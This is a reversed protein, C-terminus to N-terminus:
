EDRADSKGAAIPGTQESNARWLPEAGTRGSVLHGAWRDNFHNGAQVAADARALTHDPRKHAARDTTTGARRRGPTSADTRHRRHAPLAEVWKGEPEKGKM